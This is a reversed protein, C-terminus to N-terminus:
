WQKNLIFKGSLISDVYIGLFKTGCAKSILKNTYSIVLDIESSTKTTFQTFHAEDFNLSIPKM